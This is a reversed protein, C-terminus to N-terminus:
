RKLMVSFLLAMGLYVAGALLSAAVNRDAAIELNLDAKPLMILDVFFRVAALGAIGLLAALCTRAVEQGMPHAGAGILSARVVIGLSVLFAAFGFGAAANGEETILRHIDFDTIRQYSYVGAFLVAQGLIWYISTDLIARWWTFSFGIAAGNLMLSSALLSGAACFAAGLNRDRGLEVRLDFHRFLWRDHIVYSAWLLGTIWLGEGYVRAMGAWVSEGVGRGVLTASVAVAIALLYGGYFVGFAANRHLSIETVIDLRFTRDFIWKGILWVLVAVALFLIQNAYYYTLQRGFSPTAAALCTMTVSAAM